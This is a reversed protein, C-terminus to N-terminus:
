NLFNAKVVHQSPHHINTNESIQSHSVYKLRQNEHPPVFNHVHTVKTYNRTSAAFIAILFM